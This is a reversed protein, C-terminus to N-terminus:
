EYYEYFIRRPNGERSPPRIKYEGDSGVGRAREKDGFGYRVADNVVYTSYKPPISENLSIRNTTWDVQFANQIEPITTCAPLGVSKRLNVSKLVPSKGTGYVHLLSLGFTFPKPSLTDWSTEFYRKRSLHPIGVNGGALVIDRRLPSGPVNEIVTWPRGELQKRTPDILDPHRREWEEEDIDTKAMALSQIMTFNQCPPSAWIFDPAVEDIDFELANAQVFEFPYDPQPEIDVGVIRDFQGSRWLGMGAMGAGCFLDLAVVEKTM